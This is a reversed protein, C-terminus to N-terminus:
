KQYEEDSQYYIAVIGNTFLGFKVQEPSEHYEVLAQAVERMSQGSIWYDTAEEHDNVAWILKESSSGKTANLLAIVNDQLLGKTVLFSIVGTAPDVNFRSSNGYSPNIDFYSFPDAVAKQGHNIQDQILIEKTHKAQQSFNDQSVSIIINNANASHHGMLAFYLLAIKILIGSKM